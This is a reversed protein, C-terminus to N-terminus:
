TVRTANKRWAPRFAFSHLSLTALEVDRSTLSAHIATLDSNRASITAQASTLDSDRLSLTSLASALKADREALKEVTKARLDDFSTSLETIYDEAGQLKQLAAALEAPCDDEPQQGDGGGCTTCPRAGERLRACEARLQTCETRSSERDQAGAAQLRKYESLLEARTAQAAERVRACEAELHVQNAELQERVISAGQLDRQLDALRGEYARSERLLLELEEVATARQAEMSSLSKRLQEAQQEYFSHASQHAEQKQNFDAAATAASEKLQDVLLLLRNNNATLEELESAHIHQATALEKTVADLDADSTRLEVGTAKLKLDSSRLASDSEELHVQLGELQQRLRTLHKEHEAETAAAADAAVEDVLRPRRPTPPSWRAVLHWWIAAQVDTYKHTTHHPATHHPTTRHPTTFQM